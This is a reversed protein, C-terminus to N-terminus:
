LKSRYETPSLGVLQRFQRSFHVSSNYGCKEGIETVTLCTDALLTKATEIRGNIIDAGCSIGFANKYLEQFYPESVHVEKAMSHISREYEPHEYISKRLEMLKQSYVSRFAANDSFASAESLMASILLSCSLENNRYFADYILKTYGGIDVSDGIHVLTDTQFNVPGDSEFQIWDNVYEDGLTRYIHPSSINFLILTNPKSVIENGGINFVAPTRVFLLLYCDYGKPRNVAFYKDHRGNIGLRRIRYM